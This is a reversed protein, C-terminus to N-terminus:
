EEKCEIEKRAWFVIVCHERSEGSMPASLPQAFSSYAFGRALLLSVHWLKIVLGFVQGPM